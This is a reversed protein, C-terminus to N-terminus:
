PSAPLWRSPSSGTIDTLDKNECSDSAAIENWADSYYYFLTEFFQGENLVCIGVLNGEPCSGMAFAGQDIANCSVELDFNEFGSGTWERCHRQAPDSHTRHDCKGFVVNSARAISDSDVSDGECHCLVFSFGVLIFCKNIKKLSM